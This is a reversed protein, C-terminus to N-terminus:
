QINLIINVEGLSQITLDYNLTIPFILQGCVEESVPLTQKKKSSKNVQKKMKMPMKPLVVFGTVNFIVTCNIRSVQIM